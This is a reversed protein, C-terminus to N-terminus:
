LMTIGISACIVCLFKEVHHQFGGALIFKNFTALACELVDPVAERTVLYWLFLLQGGGRESLPRFFVCVGWTLMITPCVLLLVAFQSSDYGVAQRTAEVVLVFRFFKLSVCLFTSIRRKEVRLYADSVSIIEGRLQLFLHCVGTTCEGPGHAVYQDGM